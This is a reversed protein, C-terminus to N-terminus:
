ISKTSTAIIMNKFFMYENNFKYDIEKKNLSLIYNSVNLINKIQSLSAGLAINQFENMYSHIIGTLNGDIDVVLGGSSGSTVPITFANVLNQGFYLDGVYYGQFIPNYNFKWIGRPYNISYIRQSHRLNNNALKVSPM